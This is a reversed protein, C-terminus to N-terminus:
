GVTADDIGEAVAHCIIDLEDAAIALPPMIVVVNGLPRLWVGKSRAFDCVRQGRRDTWPYPEKTGKDRVLEIGAILGHQRIDGVQPHNRIRELHDRLQQSRSAVKALTKEEDFVDLSAIAVAAALPNGGYTHGHFFTKSEDFRGLFAQWIQDTALTAAM